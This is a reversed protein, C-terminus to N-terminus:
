QFTFNDYFDDWARWIAVYAYKPRELNTGNTGRGLIDYKVGNNDKIILPFQDITLAQYNQNNSVKFANIVRKSANGYVVYDQSQITINIINSNSFDNYRFISISSLGDLIGYALEGFEPINDEDTDDDPLPIDRVRSLDNTEKSPKVAIRTSSLDVVVKATPFNEKVTKWTTELVPITNFRRNAKEGRIGKILMQSWISETAEDWPTMNNKYLYGSARFINDRTFALSSKTLPCRSFAYKQGNFEDNVVENHNIYVYPYVRIGSGFNVVGVLENDSLNVNNVSVFEPNLALPFLNLAGSIDLENVVWESESDQNKSDDDSCSILLFSLLFVHFLKM